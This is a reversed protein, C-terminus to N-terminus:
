GTTPASRSATPTGTACWRSGPGRSPSAAASACRRWWSPCSRRPPWTASSCGAPCWRGSSWTSPRGRPSCTWSSGTSVPRRRLRRRRRRAADLGPAPRRLVGGRQAPRDAAFDDRLEYSHLEGRPRRRRAAALLDARRLRRRGGAGQRRPLRRGDRRDAGRGEPLDGARRAAHVARLRVAAAAAGPVGHRRRLHVVSGDPLGILADHALSAATPTSSRARSWCSTHMRGKPDTLQVRDGPRFPGRHAAPGRRDAPRRDSPRRPATM